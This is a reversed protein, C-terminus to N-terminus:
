RRTLARALSPEDEVILLHTFSSNVPCGAAARVRLAQEAVCTRLARLAAKHLRFYDELAALDPAGLDAQAALLQRLSEPDPVEDAPVDRLLRM